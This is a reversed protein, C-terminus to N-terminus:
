IEAKNIESGIKASCCMTSISVGTPLNDVEHKKFDIFDLPVWDKVEYKPTKSYAIQYEESSIRISELRDFVISIFYIILIIKKM